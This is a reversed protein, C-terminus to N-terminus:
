PGGQFDEHAYHLMDLRITEPVVLWLEDTMDRPRNRTSRSLRYLVGREDVVYLEAKKSLKRIQARSFRDIEGNLFKILNKSRLDSEQHAKTWREAQYELPGMPGGQDDEEETRSRTVVAAVVRAATPFPASEPGPRDDNLTVGDPPSQGSEEHVPENLSAESKMLKEPNKSVQELHRLEEADEVQGSEGLALTKSTMYDAAQNYDRKVHVLKVSKFKVELAEYIRSDEVVVLDQVNRESMLEMGKLLGHYEADNVTVDELIFGHASLARWGPLEWVVCGCSGQRTSTKATGDFSLVYGTYSDDLMELSILPTGLSAGQCPHTDSKTRDPHRLLLTSVIKRKLIEFAEKATSLDRGAREQKDTREYLVAAVVPFDEIFKHYYNLIGLFSQVGKLTKPFPLNQIGKAIKPTARLGEASIEHSLYPITLKGFESKPLSDTINWYRLRFLLADLDACLQDWTPAGHAIDDIYSYNLPAGPSEEGDLLTKRVSQPLDSLMGKRILDKIAEVAQYEQCQSIRGFNEPKHGFKRCESCFENRGPNERRPSQWGPRDGTKAPRWGSHEMVCFVANHIDEDTVAPRSLPTKPAAELSPGELVSRPLATGEPIGTEIDEVEDDFREHGDQEADSEADSQVVYARGPRRPKFRGPHVNDARFDRPKPPPTDYDGDQALDEDQQLVYELDDVDHFRQNVLIAKLQKDRLNKMFRKIHQARKTASSKYKIGAKVAAENLRYLFELPTEGSMQKMTFYRESELTRTKLYKHRFERSQKKWDAQAHKPLQGRWNRVASSM